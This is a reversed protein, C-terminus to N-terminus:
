VSRILNLHIIKTQYSAPSFSRSRDLMVQVYTAGEPTKCLYCRKVPWTGHMEWERIWSGHEGETLGTCSIHPEKKAM